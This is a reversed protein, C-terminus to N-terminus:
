QTRYHGRLMAWFTDTTLRDPNRQTLYSVHQDPKALPSLGISWLGTAENPLMSYRIDIVRNPHKPDAALYGNSFWRFREVDLAQQTDPELWPFDRALELKAISSGPYLTLESGARVADVFYDDEIEYVIKWLLINGMSPKAELKIPQHGRSEALEWGAEVARDRQVLGLTPYALAWVAAIHALRPRHKLAATIILALLPLTYLPDIVSITNWAIRVDSFPWYLMTGYTTCSDLLAHTAYGATCYLIFRSLPLAWRRQLLAFLVMGVIAGGIPIFVLAHTFQRHFELFLLPDVSSRILVDLDPAMGGLAGLVAAKRSHEKPAIAIAATAGIVGQTIPDMAAGSYGQGLGM